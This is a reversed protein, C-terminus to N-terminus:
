MLPWSVGARPPKPLQASEKDEHFFLVMCSWNCVGNVLAWNSYYFQEASLQCPLFQLFQLLGQESEFELPRGLHRVLNPIFLSPRVLIHLLHKIRM